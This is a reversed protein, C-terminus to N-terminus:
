RTAAIAALIASQSSSLSGFDVGFGFPTARKRNIVKQTLTANTRFFVRGSPKWTLNWEYYSERIATETIYGWLLQVGRSQLGRFNDFLDGINVFWDLLWSFPTADFVARPISAPDLGFALAVLEGRLATNHLLDAASGGHVPLLLQTLDYQYGSSFTLESTVHSTMFGRIDINSNVTATDAICLADVPNAKGWLKGPTSFGVALGSTSRGDFTLNATPKPLGPVRRRRRVITGNDKIWQDVLSNVTDILVGVKAIDDALPKVGFIFNLYEGGIAKILNKRKSPSIASSIIQKGLLEPLFFGSTIAEAIDSLLNVQSQIPNTSKIFSTGITILESDTKAFSWDPDNGVTSGGLASLNAGTFGASTSATAPVSNTVQDWKPSATIDPRFGFTRGHFDTVRKCLFPHGRDGLQYALFENVNQESFTAGPKRVNREFSPGSRYSTIPNTFAFDNVSFKLVPTRTTINV